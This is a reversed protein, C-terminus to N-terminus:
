HEAPQQKKREETKNEMRRTKKEAIQLSNSAKSPPLPRPPSISFRGGASRADHNPCRPARRKGLKRARFAIPLSALKVRSPRAAPRQKSALCFRRKVEHTHKVKLCSSIERERECSIRRNPCSSLAASLFRAMFLCFRRVFLPGIRRPPPGDLCAAGPCDSRRGYVATARIRASRTLPSQPGGGGRGLPGIVGGTRDEEREPINSINYPGRRTAKKEKEAEKTKELSLCHSLWVSGCLAVSLLLSCCLSLSLAKLHISVLPAHSRSLHSGSPDRAVRSLAIPIM